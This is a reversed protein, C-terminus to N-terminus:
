KGTFFLLTGLLFDSISSGHDGKAIPVLQVDPAGLKVMADYANQSNFFFVLQDNTGHYLRTPTKPRWNYVDNDQTAAFFGTETGDAVAKRFSETLISNFSVSIPYAVGSAKIGAAYPEKFYYEMPKNLKYIRDYTLMVWLYLKNSSAMGHTDQNVVYKMFSTKDYAGAGCSSAVLNFEGPANEELEKQLSMTAFGGESYGALFLKQNWKVASQKAIMEKVARLMDASASALSARHEYPHPLSSSAGYGIYDPYSIIYGLSGFLTGFTAAESGENFNSPAQDDSEITGHQVSLMSVDETTEPLIVAGSATIDEGDTNKTHYTLRYVKVGNKVYAAILPSLKSAEAVLEAKTFSKIETSTVLYQDSDPDPENGENKCSQFIILFWLVLFSYKLIFRKGSGFPNMDSM